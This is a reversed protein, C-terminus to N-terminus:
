ILRNGVGTSFQEKVRLLKRDVGVMDLSQLISHHGAMIMAAVDDKLFEDLTTAFFALWNNKMVQGAVAIVPFLFVGLGLTVVSIVLLAILLPKNWVPKWFANWSVYLDKGVAAINVAMTVGARHSCVIYTRLKGSLGGTTLERRETSVDIMKRANMLEQVNARVQEFQSGAGDVLDAWGDLRVGMKDINREAM